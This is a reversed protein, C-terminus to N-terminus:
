RAAEAPIPRASWGIWRDVRIAIVPGEPPHHRYSEYRERLLRIPGAMAEVNEIVEAWGDARVWWLRTWDADYHDALVAVRPEARINRVRKLNRSRKPKADVASYIMDGSVCFTMVVLHPQGDEGVTALRVVPASALRARAIHEPMTM